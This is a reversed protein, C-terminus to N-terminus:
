SSSQSGQHAARQLERIFLQDFTSRPADYDANLKRYNQVFDVTEKSLSSLVTEIQDVVILM